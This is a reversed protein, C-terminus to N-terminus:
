RTSPLRYNLDEPNRVPAVDGGPLGRELELSKWESGLKKARRAAKEVAHAEPDRYKKAARKARHAKKQAIDKAKLNYRSNEGNRMIDLKDALLRRARKRNEERSRSLQCKVVVGTPVHKLQVASNTKNIKQGGPGSGKLFSEEIEEESVKLRPPLKPPKAPRPSSSFARIANYPRFTTTKRRFAAALFIDM